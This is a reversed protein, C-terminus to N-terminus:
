REMRNILFNLFLNIPPGFFRVFLLTAPLYTQTCIYTSVTHFTVRHQGGASIVSGNVARILIIIHFSINASRLYVLRFNNMKGVHFVFLNAVSATNFKSKSIESFHFFFMM